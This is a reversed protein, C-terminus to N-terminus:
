FFDDDDDNDDDDREPAVKKYKIEYVQSDPSDIIYKVGHLGTGHLPALFSESDIGLMLPKMESLHQVMMDDIYNMHSETIEYPEFVAFTLKEVGRRYRSLSIIQSLDEMCYASPENPWDIRYFVSISEGPALPRPFLIRFVQALNPQIPTLSEVKLKAKTEDCVRAKIKMEKFAAKSEGSEKHVIYETPADSVNRVTLRRYSSWTNKETDVVDMRTIHEYVHSNDVAAEDKDDLSLALSMRVEGTKEILKNFNDRRRYKKDIFSEANNEVVIKLFEAVSRIIKEYDGTKGIDLDKVWDNHNLYYELTKDLTVEEIQFVFVKKKRDCATTVENQCHQSRNSHSSLILLLAKSNSIADFIDAAYEEGSHTHLSNKDIWCRIGNKQFTEFLSMALEDDQSSKSIFLDIAENDDKQKNTEDCKIYTVVDEIIKDHRNTKLAKYDKIWQKQSMYLTITKNPTVEEIEYVFVKINNECATVIADSCLSSENSNKSFIFLVSQSGLVPETYDKLDDGPVECSIGNEELIGCLTVALQKEASAYCILVDTM